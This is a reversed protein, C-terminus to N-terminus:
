STPPRREPGGGCRGATVPLFGLGRYVGAGDAARDAMTRLCALALTDAAPTADEWGTRLPTSATVAM